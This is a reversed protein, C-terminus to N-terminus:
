GELTAKYPTKTNVTEVLREASVSEESLVDVRGSGLDVSVEKVGELSLLTRKVTNVCGQCSMGSVRLVYSKM